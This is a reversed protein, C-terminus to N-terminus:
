VEHGVVPLPAPALAAESQSLAATKENTKSPRPSRRRASKTLSLESGDNKWNISKWSETIEEQTVGLEAAISEMGIPEVHWSTVCCWRAQALVIFWRGSQTVCLLEADVGAMQRTLKMLEMIRSREGRWRQKHSVMDMTEFWELLKIENNRQSFYHRVRLATFAFAGVILVQIFLNLYELM